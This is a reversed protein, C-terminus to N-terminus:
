ETTSMIALAIAGGIAVLALNEPTSYATALLMTICSLIGYFAKAM